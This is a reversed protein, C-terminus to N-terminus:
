KIDKFGSIDQCFSFTSSCSGGGMNSQKEVVNLPLPGVKTRWLYPQYSCSFSDKTTGLIQLERSWAPLAIWIRKAKTDNKKKYGKLFQKIAAFNM